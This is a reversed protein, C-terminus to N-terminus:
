RCDTWRVNGDSDGLGEFHTFRQTEVGDANVIHLIGNNAIYTVFAFRQSDPSWEPQPVFDAPALLRTEDTAPTYFVLRDGFTAGNAVIHQGDPSEYVFVASQAIRHQGLRIRATRQGDPAFIDYGAEGSPSEWYFIANRRAFVGDPIAVETMFDLLTHHEGTQLNILGAGATRGDSTTYVFSQGGALWALNSLTGDRIIEGQTSDNAWLFRMQSGNSQILVIGNNDPSWLFIIDNYIMDSPAGIVRRNSDELEIIEVGRSSYAVARSNDPSFTGDVQIDTAITEFRGDELYYRVLEYLGEPTNHWM